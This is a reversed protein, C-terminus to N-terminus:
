APVDSVNRAFARLLLRFEEVDQDSYVFRKRLHARHLLVERTEEIIADSLYLEFAGAVAHNLLQASVGQKSLFASVLATSDFVAKLMVNKNNKKVSPKSRRPLGSKRSQLRSSAPPSSPM